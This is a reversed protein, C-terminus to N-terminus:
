ELEYLQNQQIEGSAAAFVLVTRLRRERLLTQRKILIKAERLFREVTLALMVGHTVKNSRSNSVMAPPAPRRGPDNTSASRLVRQSSCMNLRAIVAAVRAVTQAEDDDGEGFAFVVVTGLVAREVLALALGSRIARLAVPL